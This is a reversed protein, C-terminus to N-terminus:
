ANDGDEKLWSKILLAAVEMNEDVFDRIDQRLEMSRETHLDMVNAGAVPNGNEDLQVEIPQGDPGMETQGPMTTALLEEMAREEEEQKKRKKRRLLLIVTLLIAFLLLGAGAAIFVWIPIGAILGPTTTPEEVEEVPFPTALVPVKWSIYEEASMEETTVPMIGAASAALRQVGDVDVIGGPVVSSNVTIAVSVDTLTGCHVVMTTQTKPNDYEINGQGERIQQVEDVAEGQEVQTPLDANTTTGVIGGATSQDDTLFEYAYFRTGIIGAGNTSGDQAFEPLRVDYDVITKDGLEVNCNVAVGLNEAGGFAPALVQIVRTRIRNSWEQELQLKLASSDAANGNGSGDGLFNSYTNGLTDEITFNEVDLGPVSHSIYNRIANAQGDSLLKGEQMTLIVGATAEVMNNADLVYGRDEGPNINVDADRVGPFQRITQEMRDQLDLLWARERDVQTSLASVREFYGSPSATGSSYQEQLLKAKLSAAQGAPVMITGTGELRYDTVGQDQLWLLVTNTEENTARDILPTYPRTNAFIIVGVIVAAVAVAILIWIKKSVKGLATKVKDLYGKLKEKNM